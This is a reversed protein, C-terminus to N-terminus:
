RNNLYTNKTLGFLKENDNIINRYYIKANNCM